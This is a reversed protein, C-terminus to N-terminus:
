KPFAYFKNQLLHRSSIASVWTFRVFLAFRVNNRLCTFPYPYLRSLWPISIHTTTHAIQVPAYCKYILLSVSLNFHSYVIRVNQFAGLSLGIIKCM